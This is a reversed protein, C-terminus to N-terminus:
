QDSSLCHIKNTSPVILFLRPLKPFMVPDTVLLKLLLERRANLDLSLFIYVSVQARQFQDLRDYVTKFARCEPLIDGRSEFFIIEFFLRLDIPRIAFRGLVNGLSDTSFLFNLM